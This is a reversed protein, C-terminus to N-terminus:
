SSEHSCSTNCFYKSDNAEILPIITELKEQWEILMKRDIITVVLPNYTKMFAQFSIYLPDKKAEKIPISDWPYHPTIELYINEEKEYIWFSANQSSWVCYKEGVWYKTGEPSTIYTFRIKENQIYENNMRGIDKNWLYGIDKTISKHLKLKGSFSEQLRSRLIDLAVIIFDDEFLTYMKGQIDNYTIIVKDYRFLQKLPKSVAIHIYESKNITFIINKMGINM